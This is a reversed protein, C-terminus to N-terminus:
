SASHRSERLVISSRDRHHRRDAWCEALLDVRQVGSEVGTEDPIVRDGEMSHVSGRQVDDAPQAGIGLRGLMDRDVVVVGSGVVRLNGVLEVISMSVDRTGFSMRQGSAYSFVSVSILSRPNRIHQNRSWQTEQIASLVLPVSIVRCHRRIATHSVVVSTLLM